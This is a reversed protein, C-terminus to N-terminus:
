ECACWISPFLVHSVIEVELLYEGSIVIKRTANFFNFRQFKYDKAIKQPPKKGSRQEGDQGQDLDDERRTLKDSNLTISM